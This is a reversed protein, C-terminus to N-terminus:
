RTGGFIEPMIDAATVGRNDVAKSKDTRLAFALEGNRAAYIVREAQEQSVALTLITRPIQETTEQGDDSKTTRSSVSTDGVGIVQVNPLLMRTYPALKRTSGDPLYMEPDGSAFIAVWSGPNVFGAVRAPDTLEVSVALRGDPIGLTEVDGPDGFQAALVQQGPYITSLAAQDTISDTSTLAGGVLDDRAVERTGLKDAALADAVSEGPEITATATIVEVRVQGATARADVGQVYLIIMTTGLAAVALAVLLLISRRAMAM